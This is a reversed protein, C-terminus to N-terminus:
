DTENTKVETTPTIVETITQPKPDFLEHWRESGFDAIFKSSSHGYERKIEIPLKEFETEINTILSHAEALTKPMGTIDAFVPRYAPDNLTNGDKYRKVINEVKCDEAAEQIKEYIDTVGTKVVSKHGRDDVRISYTNKEKRGANSPRQPPQNQRCYFM